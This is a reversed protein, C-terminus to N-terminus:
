EGTGDGVDRNAISNVSNNSSVSGGEAGSAGVEPAATFMEFAVVVLFIAFGKRLVPVPLRAALETGGLTGAFAGCVMLVIVLWDMEIGLRWYRLVGVLAMPVMMALAMGQASKQGFHCILVLAPVVITGAGLGLSGSIVGAAVGLVMFFWWPYFLQALMVFSWFLGRNASYL